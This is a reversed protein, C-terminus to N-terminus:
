RMLQNTTSAFDYRVALELGTGTESPYTDNNLPRLELASIFPNGNGTNVLCVHIYDSSPVYIIEKNDIVQADELDVIDWLDVGLYLAFAPAANKHDYNGYFFRARILYRTDKGLSPVLTYCNRKGEPFSRVNWLQKDGMQLKLEASIDANEGSETFNADSLYTIGTTEDTYGAADSSGCDISIFGSM